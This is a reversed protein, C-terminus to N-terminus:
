RPPRVLCLSRPVLFPPWSMFCRDRLKEAPASRAIKILVNEPTGANPQVMVLSAGAERYARVVEAAADMPLGTGCNM